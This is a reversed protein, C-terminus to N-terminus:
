FRVRIKERVVCLWRLRFRNDFHTDTQLLGAIHRTGHTSMSSRKKNCDRDSVELLCPRGNSYTQEDRETSHQEAVISASDTTDQSHRLHTSLISSLRGIMGSQCFAELSVTLGYRRKM